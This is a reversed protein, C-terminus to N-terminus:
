VLSQFNLSEDTNLLIWKDCSQCHTNDDWIKGIHYAFIFKIKNAFIYIKAKTM